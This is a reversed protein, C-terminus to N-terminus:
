QGVKQYNSNTTTVQIQKASAGLVTQAPYNTGDPLSALQVALTVADKPENLYTNVNLAQIKKAAPEFSVSMQDGPQAYNKFVLNVAGETPTFSVNGAQFAAQMKQPDPPLYLTLVDKVEGMYDKMEEKKHEVIREKLRGRQQQQPQAADGGIPTKQVQGDPGYQCLFTKTGKPEGKYSVQQTETWHYQALRQKNEAASQKLAVLKEQLAPQQTFGYGALLLLVASLVILTTLLSKRKQM